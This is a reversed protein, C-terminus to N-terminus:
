IFGYEDTNREPYGGDMQKTLDTMPSIILFVAGDRGFLTFFLHEAGIM